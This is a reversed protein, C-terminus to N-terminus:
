IGVGRQTLALLARSFEARQRRRLTEAEERGIAVFCVAEGAVRQALRPLDAAVVHGICPYGGVTQADALLVIPRGDPPLQVTGPAVPASLREPLAVADADGSLRLGQRDSRPDVRWERRLVDAIADAHAEDEATASVLRVPASPDPHAPGLRLWWHPIHPADVTVATHADLPLRDGTHLARGDMGGFGGRLDTSRSGMVPALAIGGSMALWARLGRRIAGIRLTGAPLAVPRDGPVPYRRGTADEFTAEVEAGCLAVRLPQTWRLTPGTLALELVAAEAANGVMRNALAATGPDLAGALAVGLHRWGTRGRDQVTTQAGPAIVDIWRTQTM